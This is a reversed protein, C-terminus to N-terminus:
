GASDLKDIEAFVGSLENLQSYKRRFSRLQCLANHLIVERKEPVKMAYMTNTYVSKEGGNKHLSSYASFQLPENSTEEVIEVTLCRIIKAAQRVRYKEAAVSDNWEFVDHLPADEPRSVDLLNEPTLKGDDDLERCVDFAVQPDANIRSGPKFKIIQSM